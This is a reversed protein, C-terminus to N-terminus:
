AKVKQGQRGFAFYIGLLGLVVATTPEPVTQHESPTWTTIRGFLKMSNTGGEPSVFQSVFTGGSTESFGLLQLTYEVKDIKFTQAATMNPFLIIDACPPEGIPCPGANATEQIAFTFNFKQSIAPDSLALNIDLAVASAITSMYLPNNFHRLEGVEFIEGVNLNKLGVGTFGLGSQGLSSAGVGWRVQNETGNSLNYIVQAGGVASGDVWTGSTSNLTLAQASPLWCGLSTTLTVASLVRQLWYFKM